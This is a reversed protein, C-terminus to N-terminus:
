NKWVTKLINTRLPFADDAVFFMLCRCRQTQGQAPVNLTQQLIRTGLRSRGFVGGDSERGESGIDVMTFCYNADVSAMLIISHFGKYNYFRSGSNRPASLLLSKVIYFVHKNSIHVVTNVKLAIHKGDIAGICNPFNWLDNFQEAINIWDAESPSALYLPQLLKWLASSVEYVISSVTSKSTRYSHAISTYSSGTALFRITMGLRKMPDIPLAHNSGHTIEPGILHLLRDFKRRSMRFYNFHTEEDFLRM